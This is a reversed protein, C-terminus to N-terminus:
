GFFVANVLMRQCVDIPVLRQFGWDGVYAHVLEGERRLVMALTGSNDGDVLYYTRTM